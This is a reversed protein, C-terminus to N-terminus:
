LNSHNPRGAVSDKLESRSRSVPKGQAAAYRRNAEELAQQKKLKNAEVLADFERRQQEQEAIM